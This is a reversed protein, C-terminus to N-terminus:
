KGSRDQGFAIVYGDPDSIAFEKVDYFTVSPEYVIAVDKARLEQFLPEVDSVWVYADWAAGDAANPRVKAPDEAQSLLITLGDRRAMCLSPPQGYFRDSEFGLKDRYFAAAAAVDRVYLYPAIGLLKSSGSGAAAM